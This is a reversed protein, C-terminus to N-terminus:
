ATPRLWRVLELFGPLRLAACGGVYLLCGTATGATLRMAPTAGAILGDLTWVTASMILGVLLYPLVDRAQAWAGYRLYRGSYHANLVFAVVGLVVQSWAMMLVGFPAASLLLVLGLGKKAVELRFFEQSRGQAVLANLNIVHLPWLLGALALVRLLPISPGWKEGFLTLVVPGGVVVLGLMIPTNLLIMAELSRRVGRRLREADMAVQAFVPFAVRNAVTAVVNTPVQCTGEARGYLGLDAAGYWRGIVIGSLRVHIQDLVGSLLLFGGFRFLNGLAHREFALHPRWPSFRWLLAVTVATSVVAQWALSWVNGGLSALLVAVAGSVASAAVAIKMQTRFDLAKTLLASHVTGFSSVFLNFGMLWALPAIVPQRFFRAIGPGILGLTLGAMCGAGISFYFVSSEEAPTTEPRQVLAAGFGSDIVVAGVGIFVSIMAIVGFEAPSLLRALLLAVAFQVLQRVTVDAGSWLVASTARASLGMPDLGAPESSDTLRV